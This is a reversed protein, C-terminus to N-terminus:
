AAGPSNAADAGVAEPRNIVVFRGKGRALVQGEADRIEAAHFLSRGRQEIEGAEIFIELEVPVPKVYEITLEATVARVDRFRNLKGMAEDLLLAIIGGHLYGKGGQYEAALQFRGRIKRRADDQEFALKMGRPNAGGCVFCWNAPNPELLM